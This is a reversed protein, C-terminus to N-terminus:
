SQFAFKVAAQAHIVTTDYMPIQLDVDQLLLGIETCGLIIGEAGKHVLEKIVEIYYDRSHMVVKGKCLEEFIIHDLKLQQEESPVSIELGNHILRDKYFAEGMTFRTGLLAAKQIGDQKLKQSTCDSIHLFPISVNKTIYNSIKHLTNTCLIILDAGTNQLKKAADALIEGARMWEGNRQLQEIEHFNLSVIVCPASHQGGLKTRVTENIIRYYTLTSEWSMGGILGITKM